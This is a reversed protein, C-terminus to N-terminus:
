RNRAKGYRERESKDARRAHIIRITPDSLDDGLNTYVVFLLRSGSDGVLKYRREDMTSHDQDDVIICHPDMYALTAEDFSVKHKAANSAAKDLDWTFIAFRVSPNYAIKSVV